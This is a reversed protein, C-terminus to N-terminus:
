VWGVGDHIAEADCVPFPQNPRAQLVVGYGLRKPPSFAMPVLSYCLYTASYHSM